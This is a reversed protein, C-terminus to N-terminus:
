AVRRAAKRALKEARRREARSMPGNGGIRIGDETRTLAANIDIEYDGRVVRAAVAAAAHGQMKADAFRGIVRSAAGRANVTTLVIDGGILPADDGLRARFARRHAEMIAIMGQETSLKSIDPQYEPELQPAASWGGLPQQQRRYGNYNMYEFLQMEKAAQSWGVLFGEFMMLSAPDEIQHEAAMRNTVESLVAPMADAIDDFTRLDYRLAITALGSIGIADIGRSFFAARFVPLPHVKDRFTLPDNGATYILTDSAIQVEGPLSFVVYATM